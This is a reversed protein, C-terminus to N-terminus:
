ELLQKIWGQIMALDNALDITKDKVSTKMEEKLINRYHIFAQLLCKKNPASFDVVSQINNEVIYERTDTINKVLTKDQLKFLYLDIIFVDIADLILKQKYNM